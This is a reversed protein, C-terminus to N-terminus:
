EALRAEILENLYEDVTMANMAYEKGVDTLGGSLGKYFTERNEETDDDGLNSSLFEEFAEEDIELNHTKVIEAFMLESEIQTKITKEWSPLLTELSYGSLSLYYELTVTEGYQEQLSKDQYEVFSDVRYDLYDDPVDFKSNDYIYDSLSNYVLVEEVYDLVEQVTTLEYDKELKEKIVADTVTEPTLKKFTYIGNVKFEFTTEKGNLSENGYNEPFTVKHSVTEGVKAGILGKTFGDIFGGETAGTTENVSANEKVNIWQDKASGGSFAEGDLYGTYDINVIDGEEVVTRDTVEVWEVGLGAGALFDSFGALIEEETVEYDGTFVKDLDSFDALSTITPTGVEKGEETNDKNKDGCAAVSFIMTACLFLALLKKKM